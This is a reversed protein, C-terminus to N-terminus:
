LLPLLSLPLPIETKPPNPPVVPGNAFAVFVVVVVAVFVVVAVAGIGDKPDSEREDDRPLFIGLDEEVVVAAADVAKEDVGFAVVDSGVFFGKPLMFRTAEDGFGNAAVPSKRVLLLLLLMLLLTGVVFVVAFATEVVRIFGKPLMLRTAEVIGITGVVFGAFVEDDFCGVGIAADAATTGVAATTEGVLVAVANANADVDANLRGLGLVVVSGVFFFGNPLMLRTAAEDVDLGDLVPAAVNGVFFFGNPFM